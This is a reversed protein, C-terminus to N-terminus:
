VAIHVISSSVAGARGSTAASSRRNKETKGDRLMSGGNGDSAEKKPKTLKGVKSRAARTRKFQAEKNEIVARYWARTNPEDEGEKGEKGIGYDAWSM